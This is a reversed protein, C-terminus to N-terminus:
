GLNTQKLSQLIATEDMWNVQFDVRSYLDAFHPMEEAADEGLKLIDQVHWFSETAIIDAAQLGPHEAVSGFALKDSLKSVKWFGERAFRERMPRNPQGQDFIFHIRDYGEYFTRRIRHSYQVAGAFCMLNPNGLLSKAWYRVLKEHAQVDVSCSVAKIGSRVIIDRFLWRLRDREALSYDLFPGQGWRCEGLHFKKLPAKGEFPQHLLKEWDGALQDFQHQTGVVGGWTLVKQGASTGSDDFYALLM